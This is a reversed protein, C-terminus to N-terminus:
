TAERPSHVPHQSRFGIAIRNWINIMGILLTLKVMDAEDFVSRAADYAADPAQGDAILTLTETWLLAARERASYLSSERWADLLYIRAEAEGKARADKTHLHLCYACGNIQSARIKVLEMLAPELGAAMVQADLAGVAKMLDPAIKYANLRAHM